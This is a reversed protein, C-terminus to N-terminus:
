KTDEPEIPRHGLPVKLSPQSINESVRAVVQVAQPSPMSLSGLSLSSFGSAAFPVSTGAVDADQQLYVAM